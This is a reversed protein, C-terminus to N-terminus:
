ADQKEESQESQGSQLFRRVAHQTEKKSAERWAAVLEPSSNALFEVIADPTKM